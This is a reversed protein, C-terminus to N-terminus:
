DLNSIDQLEQKRQINGYYNVPMLGGELEILELLLNNGRQLNAQRFGREKSEQKNPIDFGLINTHWHLSSDLDSVIIAFFYPDPAPLLDDQAFNLIPILVVFFFKPSPVNAVNTRWRWLRMM